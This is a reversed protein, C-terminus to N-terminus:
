IRYPLPHVVSLKKFFHIFDSPLLLVITFSRNTANTPLVFFNCLLLWVKRTPEEAKYPQCLTLLKRARLAPMGLAVLQEEPFAALEPVTAAEKAIEAAFSQVGAKSCLQHIATSSGAM